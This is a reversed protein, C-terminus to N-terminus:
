FRSSHISFELNPEKEEIAEVGKETNDLNIIVRFYHIKSIEEGLSLVGRFTEDERLM